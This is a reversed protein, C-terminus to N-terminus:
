RDLDNRSTDPAILIVVMGALYILSTIRGVFAYDGKYAEILISAGAIGLSSTIRGFNFTVGSGTSRVRTPFMEPFCLPMWGFFFGGSLGIFGVWGLFWPDEPSSLFYVYESNALCIVSMVFYSTRRGCRSAIWGGVFSGITGGLARAFQTASKFGPDAQGVVQDAWPVLWNGSGWGGFLPVTSLLIGVLTFWLLPPTFIQALPVKDGASIPMDRAALWKPSEPMLTLAFLGIPLPLASIQMCLRWNEETVALAKLMTVGAVLTLGINASAGIVGSLTPRSVSSWAEGVLAIGNPWMGGVGLCALYRLVVFQEPTACFSSLGSFATFCIISWGVAKARGFRDGFWGFLMGGSAAGLLFAINSNGFWRGLVGERDAKVESALTTGPADNWLMDSVAPRIVLNTLSMQTGAFLWGLFAIVLVTYRGASSLSSAPALSSASM